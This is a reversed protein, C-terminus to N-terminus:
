LGTRFYDLIGDLGASAEEWNPFQRERPRFEGRHGVDVGLEHHLLEHYLLFKITSRSISSTQLVSNVTVEASREDYYAWYHRIPRQSWRVTPSPKELGMEVRVEATLEDLDWSGPELPRKLEETLDVPVWDDQGEGDLKVNEVHRRVMRIYANRDPYVVQAQTTDWIHGAFDIDSGEGAEIFRHAVLTPLYTEREAFPVFPPAAGIENIYEVIAQRADISPVPTPVSRFTAEISAADASRALADDILSELAARQHDFVPVQRLPLQDQEGAFASLDFWGAPVVELAGTAHAQRVQRALERYLEWPVEASGMKPRAPADEDVIDEAPFLSRPDLWDAFDQWHDAFSVLHADDTGNAAPGRLARGIMQKLLIESRTPRALLVARANPLDIGETLKTVSTLVKLKGAKFKALIDHTSDHGREVVHTVYDATIGEAQFQEALTMAHAVNTAFVLTPGYIAEHALYHDVIARNRSMSNALRQLTQPSYDSFQQLHAREDPTLVIEEGTDVEHMHPRALVGRSILTSLDAEYIIGDPFLKAISGREREASRMPTATLGLVDVGEHGDAVELLRRYTRAPAHHAEDIVIFTDPHVELFRELIMKNAGTMLTLISACTVEIEPDALREAGRGHRSSLCQVDLTSSRDRGSADVHAGFSLSAQELLEARHAIWLVPRSAGPRLHRQCLWRVATATKGAGTPLVLLGRLGRRPHDTRAADLAKDLASWAETQHDYPDFPNELTGEPPAWRRVGQYPEVDVEVTDIAPANGPSSVATARRRKGGLQWLLKEVERLLATSSRCSCLYAYVQAKSRGYRERRGLGQEMLAKSLTRANALDAQLWEDRLGVWHDALWKPDPADGFVSSWVADNTNPRIGDASAALYVRLPEPLKRWSFQQNDM